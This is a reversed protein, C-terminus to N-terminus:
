ETDPSGDGLTANIRAIALDTIDIANRSSFVSRVELVVAAGAERMINELIPAAVQLFRERNQDLMQSVLRTEADRERRIAQVRADFADALARFEEPTLDPRRETLAKEEAELRAEIKRNEDSLASTRSEIERLVRQGFDSGRYLRESDITLVPSQVQQAAGPAALWIVGLVALLRLAWGM